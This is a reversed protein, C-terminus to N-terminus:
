LCLKPTVSETLEGDPANRVNGFPSENGFQGGLTTERRWRAPATGASERCKNQLGNVVICNADDGSRRARLLTRTVNAAM